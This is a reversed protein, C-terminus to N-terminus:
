LNTLTASITLPPLVCQATVSGLHNGNTDLNTCRFNNTQWAYSLPFTKQTKNPTILAQCVFGDPNLCEILKTYGDPSWSMVVGVSNTIPFTIVGRFFQAPLSPSVIIRNTLMGNGPSPEVLVFDRFTVVDNTQWACPLSAIAVMVRKPTAVIKTVLASAGGQGGYAQATVYAWIFLFFVALVISTCIATLRSEPTTRPLTM